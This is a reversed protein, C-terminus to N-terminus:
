PKTTRDVVGSESTSAPIACCAKIYSVGDASDRIMGDKVAFNWWAVEPAGRAPQAAKLRREYEAGLAMWRDDARQALAAAEALERELQRCLAITDRKFEYQSLRCDNVLADTRPTDSM